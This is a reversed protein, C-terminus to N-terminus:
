NSGQKETNFADLKSLQNILKEAEEDSYGWINGSNEGMGRQCIANINLKHGFTIYDRFAEVWRKMTGGESFGRWRCWRRHTYILMLTYGDHFYVRDQPGLLLNSIRRGRAEYNFFKRGHTAILKIIVNCEDVRKQKEERTFSKKKMLQEGNQWNIVALDKGRWINM